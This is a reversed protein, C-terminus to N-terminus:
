IVIRYKVQHSELMNRILYDYDINLDIKIALIEFVTKRPLFVRMVQGTNAWYKGLVIVRIENGKM